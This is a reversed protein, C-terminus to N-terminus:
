RQGCRPCLHSCAIHTHLICKGKHVDVGDQRAVGHAGVALPREEETPERKTTMKKLKRRKEDEEKRAKDLQDKEAFREQNERKKRALERNVRDLIDDRTKIYQVLENKIRNQMYNLKGANPVHLPSGGDDLIHDLEVPTELSLQTISTNFYTQNSSSEVTASVSVPTTNRSRSRRDGPKPPKVKGSKNSPISPAM